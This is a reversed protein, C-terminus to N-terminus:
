SEYGLFDDNDLAPWSRIKSLLEHTSQNSHHKYEPRYSVYVPQSKGVCSSKSIHRPSIVMTVTSRSSSSPHAVGLNRAVPQIVAYNRNAVNRFSPKASQYNTQTYIAPKSRTTQYMVPEYNITQTNPKAQVWHQQATSESNTLQTGTEHQRVRSPPQEVNNHKPSCNPGDRRPLSSSRAINPQLPTPKSKPLSSTRSFSQRPKSPAKSIKKESPESREPASPAKSKLNQRLSFRKDRPSQACVSDLEMKRATRRLETVSNLVNFAHNMNRDNIKSVTDASEKEPFQHKKWLNLRAMAGGRTTQRGARDNRIDDRCKQAAIKLNARLHSIKQEVDQINPLAKKPKNAKPSWQNSSITRSM